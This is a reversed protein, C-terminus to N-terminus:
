VFGSSIITRASTEVCLRSSRLYDYPAGRAGFVMFGIPKAGFPTQSLM